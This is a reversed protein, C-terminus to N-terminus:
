PRNNKAQWLCMSSFLSVISLDNMGIHAMLFIIEFMGAHNWIKCIGVKIIIGCEFKNENQLYFSKPLSIHYLTKHFIDNWAM